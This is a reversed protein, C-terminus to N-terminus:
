APPGAGEASQAQPVTPREESWATLLNYAVGLVTPGVFIGLIGVSGLGGIVGLLTISFPLNAGRSIIIPRVINDVQGVLLFTWALLFIGWGPSDAYFLWGAAPLLILFILGLPILALLFCAAGLLLFHPVGAIGMGITALVGQAAAAGLVGYVVSRMTKEAVVLLQEGRDGGLRHSARALRPGLEDAGTYLFLLILLSVLIQLLAGGTAAGIGLVRQGIDRVYPRINAILKGTDHAFSRWTEDLWPGILPINAIIAPPDPLGNDFFDRVNAFILPVEDAFKAGVYAVPLAVVAFFALTLITAALGTRGGLRKRLADFVPMTAVALIVAWLLPTLFPLIVVIAGGLIVALALIGSLQEIQQTREPTM